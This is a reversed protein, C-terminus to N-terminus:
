QSPPAARRAARKRPAAAEAVPPVESATADLIQKLVATQRRVLMGVSASFTELFKEDGSKAAGRAGRKPRGKAAARDSGKIGGLPYLAWPSKLDSFPAVGPIGEFLAAHAYTLVELVPRALSRGRFGDCALYRESNSARSRSPKVMRVRRFAAMMLYVITASLDSLTDFLKCVFGGEPRLTQLASLCESVIIRACFLEQLNDFHVGDIPGIEFGGDAGVVDVGVGDYKEEPTWVSVGWVSRRRPYDVQDSQYAVLESLVSEALGQLNRPEYVNGTGSPGWYIEFNARATLSPYWAIETNEQFLNPPDLDGIPSAVYGGASILAGLTESEPLVGAVVIRGTRHIQPGSRLTIGWGMQARRKAFLHSSFAGPAGCVDVFALGSTSNPLIEPVADIIEELKDGARNLNKAGRGKVSAVAGRRDQPFMREAVQKYIPYHGSDFIADLRTKQSFLGEIDQKPAWGALTMRSEDLPEPAFDDPPEPASLIEDLVQCKFEPTTDSEIVFTLTGLDFESVDPVDAVARRKPPM